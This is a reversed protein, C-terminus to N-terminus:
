RAGPLVFDSLYHSVEDSSSAASEIVSANAVIRPLEALRGVADQEMTISITGVTVTFNTYREAFQCGKRFRAGVHMAGYVVSLIDEVYRAASPVSVEAPGGFPSQEIGFLTRDITDRLREGPVVMLDSYDDPRLVIVAYSDPAGTEVDFWHAVSADPSDFDTSDWISVLPRYGKSRAIDEVLTDVKRKWSRAPPVTRALGRLLSRVYAADREARYSERITVATAGAAAIVAFYNYPARNLVLIGIAAAALGLIPSVASSYKM